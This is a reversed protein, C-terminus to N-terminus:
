PIRSGAPRRPTSENATSAWVPWGNAYAAAFRARAARDRAMAAADRDGLADFVAAAQRDLRDADAFRDTHWAADAAWLIRTADLRRALGPRDHPLPWADPGPRNARFGQTVALAVAVTDSPAADFRDTNPVARLAARVADPRDALFRRLWLLATANRDYVPTRTRLRDYLDRARDADGSAALADALRVALAPHRARELRQSVARADGGTALTLRAWLDLASALTSDQDLARRALDLAATTDGGAATTAAKQAIRVPRPVHHPSPKEFLSPASFRTEVLPGAGVSVVRLSDRLWGQWRMGLTAGDEGLVREFDGRAYVRRVREADFTRTLWGVFAGTTTYSVAGRGSWFAGAGLTAALRHGLATDAQVTMRSSVQDEASPLGDPPEFAVALGEILGVYRSAHVVPLGFERSFAHVLEHGFVHDFHEAAIHTQPRALWVPAVSTTAAGTLRGKASASPYVYSRIRVTPATGLTDALWAFRYEHDLALRRADAESMSRDFYLDFHPTQLRGGLARALDAHSTTFGLRGSFTYALALVAAVALAPRHARRDGRAVHGLLLFLAAWVLALARVVFFGPRLNLAEDYIPGFVGGFVPSYTYFQPHFGLDYVVGGLAWGLGVLAFVLRKRRLRTWGALAWALAVALVVSPVTMTVFLTLGLLYGANPAWALSVTLLVLPVVLAVLSRRLVAGFPEGRAFAGLALTGAAFFAVAAVAASSEAHLVQFVPVPWLAVAAAGLILPLAHRRLPRIAAASIDLRYARAPRTM